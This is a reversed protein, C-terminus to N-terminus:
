IGLAEITWSARGTVAEPHRREILAEVEAVRAKPVDVMLLANDHSLASPTAVYM